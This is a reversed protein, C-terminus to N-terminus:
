NDQYATNQASRLINHSFSSIKTERCDNGFRQVLWFSCLCVFLTRLLLEDYSRGAARAGTWTGAM